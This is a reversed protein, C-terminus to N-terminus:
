TITSERQASRNRVRPAHARRHAEAAVALARAAHRNLRAAIKFVGGGGPQVCHPSTNGSRALAVQVQVRSPCPLRRCHLSTVGARAAHRM